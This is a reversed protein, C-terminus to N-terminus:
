YSSIDQFLLRFNNSRVYLDPLYYYGSGIYVVQSTLLSSSESWTVSRSKVNTKSSVYNPNNKTIIVSPDNVDFDTRSQGFLFVISLILLFITRRM